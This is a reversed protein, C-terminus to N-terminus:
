PDVLRDVPVINKRNNKFLANIKVFFFKNLIRIINWMQINRFLM